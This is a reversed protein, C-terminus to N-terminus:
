QAVDRHRFAIHPCFGNVSFGTKVRRVVFGEGGTKLFNKGEHVTEVPFRFFNERAQAVGIELVFALRGSFSFDGGPFPETQHGFVLDVVAALDIQAKGQQM